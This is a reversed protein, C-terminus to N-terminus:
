GWSRNFAAQKKLVNNRKRIRKVALLVLGPIFIILMDPLGAETSLGAIGCGGGERFLPWYAAPPRSPGPIPSGHDEEAVAFLSLHDVTGCIVNNATDLSTTVDTTGGAEEFFILRLNKEPGRFATEDYSICIEIPGSYVAATNIDYYIPPRGLRFGTGTPPGSTYLQASIWGAQSSPLRWMPTVAPAEVSSCITM